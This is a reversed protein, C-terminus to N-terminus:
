LFSYKLDIEIDNFLKYNRNPGDNLYIYKAEIQTSLNLNNLASDGSIEVRRNFKRAIALVVQEINPSLDQKLFESYKPCDYIGRTVRRIKRDKTLDSLINDIQQRNFKDILDVSSFAWGRGHGVIHFFIM